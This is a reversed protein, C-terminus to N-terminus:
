IIWIHEIPSLYPSRALWPPLQTSITKHCGQQTHGLMAKQFSAEPHGAMLTLVHPQLIDHVYRQAIITTHILILSSWTDYVIAGWVMVDATPATHQQLAFVPNLRESRPGWVRVRNDDSSLNFQRQLCGPEM